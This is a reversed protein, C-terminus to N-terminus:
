FPLSDEFMDLVIHLIATRVEKARQSQRRLIKSSKSFHEPSEYGVREAIEYRRLDTSLILSRSEEMRSKVVYEWLDGSTYKQVSLEFLEPERSQEQSDRSDDIGEPPLAGRYIGEYEGRDSQGPELAGRAVNGPCLQALQFGRLLVRPLGASSWLMAKDAQRSLVSLFEPGEINPQDWRYLKTEPVAGCSPAPEPRDDGSPPDQRECEGGDGAREM